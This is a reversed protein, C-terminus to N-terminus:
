ESGGDAATAKRRSPSGEGAAGHYVGQESEPRPEQLGKEFCRVSTGQGQLQSSGAGEDAKNRKAANLM